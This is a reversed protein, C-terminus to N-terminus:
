ADEDDPDSEEPEAKPDLLTPEPASSSTTPLARQVGAYAELASTIESLHAIAKPMTGTLVSDVKELQKAVPMVVSDFDRVWRRITKLKEQAAELERKARNVAMQQFQTDETFGSLRATFLEQQVEELKRTRKRIETQWKRTQEGELWYKTRQVDDSVDDVTARAKELYIILTSRFRDINDISSVKASDAM